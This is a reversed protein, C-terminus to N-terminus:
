VFPFILCMMISRKFVPQNDKLNPRDSSELEEDLQFTDEDTNEKATFAASLGGTKHEALRSTPPRKNSSGRRKGTHVLWDGSHDVHESDVKSVSNELQGDTEISSQVPPGELDTKHLKLQRSADKEEGGQKLDNSSVGLGIGSTTHVVNNDVSAGVDIVAALGVPPSSFAGVRGVGEAPM